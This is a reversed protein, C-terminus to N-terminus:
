TLAWAVLVGTPSAALVREHQGATNPSATRRTGTLEVLLM